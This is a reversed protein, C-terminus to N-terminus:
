DFLSLKSPIYEENELIALLDREMEEFFTHCSVNNQLQDNRFPEMVTKMRKQMVMVLLNEILTVWIQMKIANSSEGYFHHM